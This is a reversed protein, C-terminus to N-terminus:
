HAARGERDVSLREGRNARVGGEGEAAEASHSPVDLARECHGDDQSHPGQDAGPLREGARGAAPHVAKRLASARSPEERPQLDGGARAGEGAAGGEQQESAGGAGPNESGPSRPRPGRRPARPVPEQQFPRPNARLAGKAGLKAADLEAKLALVEAALQPMLPTQKRVVEIMRQVEALELNLMRIEDEKARIEKEGKKQIGEQINSKEYLICLEDNRDILQIGTYNRNECALEHKHKLEIMEKELTNIIANLKGIEQVQQQSISQKQRIQLDLKNIEGRTKDRDHRSKQVQHREEKLARDKEASENRLIEVENQLIKIREKTEALDQSSNQILKVYKNRENKADEYLQIYHKLMAETEMLKKTLDLILLKKIKLEENKERAQTVQASAKRAM